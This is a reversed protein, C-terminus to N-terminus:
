DWEAKKFEVKRLIRIQLYTFGILVTGLVWAMSTAMSFRLNNYAEIWIHLSLVMTSRGPGGFTLLFVNSMNQFTAISAGVFNIIILPLLTPFTVHRMKCLLGAGDLDAAEYIEEPVGKLAALYILSSMGMTAWVTPIVCCIMAMKPDELWTQPEIYVFPLHNLVGILQNLMGQPTPDYMLRWLLAIVLVSTIQPLFFITRYFLKGKPVESLLVALFIPTTFGLAMNLFVFYFTRLLSGWFTKDLAMNIFNDLGVFQSGGTIKYNQFAMVMGRMLPYYSWLAILAVAPAVLLWPLWGKYVQKTTAIKKVLFSRIILFMLMALFLVIVLVILRAWPRYRDLEEKARAFMVGNNAKAELTKLAKEYDFHEGTASLIQSLVERNLADDVPLFFGEYIESTTDVKGEEIEKFNKRISQPVDKLYDNLELRVIDKPNVFRAQGALAEQRITEDMVGQDTISCLVKWIKDRENKPRDRVAECMVAYHQQVQVLRRGSPGAPYPFWSLLEPDLERRPDFKRLDHVLAIAMAVEGRSLLEGAKTGRQSTESARAMGTIIDSERIKLKRGDGMVYGRDIDHTGLNVPEGTIPDRMWKMWRLRHILRAAAIGASDAFNVRCEPKVSSLDEGEPSTFEIEDPLFTYTKGTTPSTRLQVIPNGGATQIWPLWSFGNPPLAIGRQEGKQKTGSYDKQPVTLKQCWYILEDWTKPPHNPNLGAARVLDTRYIIGLHYKNVQPIGYVKGNRTAVMRLLKPIEKWRPWKAEEDDIQGNGNTDDGIWENLPYLFGQDIDNRIINFWSQFIDPATKGAISMMLISRGTGKHLRLGTWHRVRLSPDEHMLEVISRSIPSDPRHSYLNNSVKLTVLPNPNDKEAAKSSVIYPSILVLLIAWFSSRLWGSGCSRFGAKRFSLHFTSYRFFPMM